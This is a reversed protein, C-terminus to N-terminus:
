GSRTAPPPPDFPLAQTLGAIDFVRQVEHPGPKLRLDFGVDRSLQTWQWLLGLGSSDIFRLGALDLEISEAGAERVQTLAAHLEPITAVDLEGRAQLCARGDTQEVRCRFGGPPLASM